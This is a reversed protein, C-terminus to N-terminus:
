ARPHAQQYVKKLREVSTLTYVQTTSLSSHGLLEQVARLDAGADLLHTAFSHRLSHTKLGARAGIAAVCRRVIGQIARPTLRAGRHSLFVAGHDAKGAPLRALLQDRVRYYRRLARVAYSGLPLLREKKGKGRVKVQDSVLDLDALNLGAIESLRMGTAYLTELIALERFGAFEGSDALAEAFRFLEEM